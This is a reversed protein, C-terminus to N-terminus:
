KVLYFKSINNEVTDDDLATVTISALYGNCKIAISTQHLEGNQSEASLELCTFKKGGILVSDIEFEVDTYGINQYTETFTPYLKKFNEKLDLSALTIPNVKELNININETQTNNIAFMDYVITANELAKKYDDGALDATANNLQRIQEDSYFSWTNELKCGIGIFESEYTLGDVSGLSFEKDNSNTQTTNNNGTQTGRVNEKEGCGTFSLTIVITLILAFIKKM